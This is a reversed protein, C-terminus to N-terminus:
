NVDPIGPLGAYKMAHTICLVNPTYGDSRKTPTQGFVSTIFTDMVFGGEYDQTTRENRYRGYGRRCADAGLFFSRGVPVGYSNTQIIVAGAPHNDTHKNVWAGTNWTVGGITTYAINDGTVDGTERLRKSMTLKNGNNASFAYFGMKHANSGGPGAALNYILCYADGSGASLIDAPTFRYAYRPFFEFYKATTIAAAAANGGGKIDQVENDATIPVGLLAKANMASGIAGRGDHDLPTYKKIIHGDVEEYGGSFIRNGKGRDGCERQAQKYDASQKLSVLAENVAVLIYKLIPNNGDRGVFAAKGGITELQTGWSIIGDMTIHHGSRLDEITNVEGQGAFIQSTAHLRERLMMSLHKTKKRGLWEGLDENKGSKIENRLATQDETRKNHRTAHRIYDVELEFEGVVWEETNDGILEDGIVGDGYLGARTRFTIRQGADKDFDTEVRVPSMKGKGEFEQFFDNNGEYLEAGKKWMTPLFNPSQSVLDATLNKNAIYSM